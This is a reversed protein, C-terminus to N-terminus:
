HEWQDTHIRMAEHDPILDIHGFPFLSYKELHELSFDSSRIIASAKEWAEKESQAPIIIAGSLRVRYKAM